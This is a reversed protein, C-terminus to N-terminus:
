QTQNQRFSRDLIEIDNSKDDRDKIGDGRKIRELREVGSKAGERTKRGRNLPVHLTDM